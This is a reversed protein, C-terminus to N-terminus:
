SSLSPGPARRQKKERADRVDRKKKETKERQTRARKRFLSFFETRKKEFSPLFLAIKKKKERADREREGERESAVTEREEEGSAFFLLVVGLHVELHLHAGLELLHAIKSLTRRTGKKFSLENKREERERERERPSSGSNLFFVHSPHRQFRPV